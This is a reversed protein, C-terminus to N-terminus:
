RSVEPSSPKSVRRGKISFPGALSIGPGSASDGKIELTFSLEGPIGLEPALFTFEVKKGIKAPNRALRYFAIQVDSLGVIDENALTQSEVREGNVTTGNSTGLDRVVFDGELRAFELHRRSLEGDDVTLDNDPSRGVSVDQTDWVLIRDPKSAEKVILYTHLREQPDAAM